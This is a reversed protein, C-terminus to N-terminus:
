KAHEKENEALLFPKIKIESNLAGSDYFVIKNRVIACCFGNSKKGKKQADTTRTSYKLFHLTFIPLMIFISGNRTEFNKTTNKGKKKRSNKM